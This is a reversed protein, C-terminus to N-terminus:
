DITLLEVGELCAEVFPQRPNTPTWPRPEPRQATAKPAVPDTAHIVELRWESWAHSNIWLWGLDASPSGDDGFVM